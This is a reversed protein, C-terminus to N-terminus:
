KPELELIELPYMGAALPNAAGAEYLRYAGPEAGGVITVGVWDAAHTHTVLSDGPDLRVRYVRLRDNETELRHEPEDAVAPIPPRQGAPARPVATSFRLARDDITRAGSSQLGLVVAVAIALRTFAVSPRM